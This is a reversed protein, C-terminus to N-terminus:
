RNWSAFTDRQRDGRLFEFIVNRCKEPQEYFLHHTAGTLVIRRNDPLLRGLEEDILKLFEFTKDGSLLLAPAKIRKVQEPKLDPFLEGETLMVDWEHANKLTDKRAEEPWKDWGRADNSLYDIFAAVGANQDGKRFAAVMPEEMRHRIDALTRKGVEAHEGPLYDLLSAAPAEAIVLSRVLEPHRVALFLATYAGYSHGIVHVRGLQLKEILGALDDADDVASYGPLTKNVNPQNYRRSYAIVHYKEAFPGLQPNWFSGDSLSGHVFVVPEGKGLEVYHLEIGTDVQVQQVAPQASSAQGVASSNLVLLAAVACVVVLMKLKGPKM